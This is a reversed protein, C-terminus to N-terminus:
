HNHFTSLSQSSRSICMYIFVLLHLISKIIIIIIIIIIIMMMMMMMMM